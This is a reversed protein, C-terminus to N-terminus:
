AFKITMSDAANPASQYCNGSMTIQTTGSEPSEIPPMSPIWNPWNIQLYRGSSTDGLVLEPAFGAFEKAQVIEAYNENSLDFQVELVPDARTGAVYGKNADAGFRNDLDTHNDTMTFTINTTDIDSGTNNFKFYGELDTYPNDRATAQVAGPHWFVIYSDDDADVAASLTLTHSAYTTSDITLSGDAGATITKGDTSVMMVPAGAEFRQATDDDVVVTASSSVIGNLRAIGARLAKEAKGTFKVTAVNDGPFTFAASQTYGGTYYEAFMSGVKVMSFTFCPTDQEFQIYQSAVTTIKGFAHELMLSFATDISAGATGSMNILTDIDFEAVKKKKIIGTHFRGSRHPNSEVPQEYTIGGTTYLLQDQDDTGATETGGNATGLKLDDAVNNATADTIVVASTTGTKQSNVEYHDDASVFEVWVRGDQGGAVLAANIQTELETAIADGTTLGTLTLTVDTSASAAGESQGQTGIRPANFTRQTTERRVFIQADLGIGYGQKDCSYMNSFDIRSRYKSM